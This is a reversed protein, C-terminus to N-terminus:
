IFFNSSKSFSFSHYCFFFVRSFSFFFLCFSADWGSCHPHPFPAHPIPSSAADHGLSQAPNVLGGDSGTNPLAIPIPATPPPIMAISNM